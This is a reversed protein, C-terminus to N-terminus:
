ILTTIIQKGEETVIMRLEQKKAVVQTPMPVTPRVEPRPVKRREDIVGGFPINQITKAFEMGVVQAANKGQSIWTEWYKLIEGHPLLKKAVEPMEPPFIKLEPLDHMKRIAEGMSQQAVQSFNNWYQLIIGRDYMDEKFKDVLKTPSLAMLEILRKIRGREASDAKEYMLFLNTAQQLEKQKQQQLALAQQIRLNGLKVLYQEKLMSGEQAKLNKEKIELIQLENAGMVKLIDVEAKLFVDTIQQRYKTEEETIKLRLRLLDQEEKLTEFGAIRASSIELETRAIDLSSAGMIKMLRLQHKDRELQKNQFGLAEEDLQTGYKTYDNKLKALKIEAPQLDDILKQKAKISKDIAKAEEERGEQILN